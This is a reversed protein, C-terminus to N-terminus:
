PRFVLRYFKVPAGTTPTAVATTMIGGGATGIETFPLESDTWDGSTLDTTEQLVYGGGLWTFSVTDITTTASLAPASSPPTVNSVDPLPGSDPGGLAAIIQPPLATAHFQLSSVYLEGNGPNGNTGSLIIPSNTYYIASNINLTCCPCNFPYVPETNFPEGDLYGSVSGGIAAVPGTVVLAVRHWTDATMPITSPVDFPTGGSAGTIDLYNSADLTLAIGSGDGASEFLTSPTGQSTGPQYIDMIVTYDTDNTSGAPLIPPLTLTAPWLPNLGLVNVIQGGPNPLGFDETTGMALSFNTGSDAGNMLLDPGFTATLPNTLVDFTWWGNTWALAPAVSLQVSNTVAGCPDSVIVTYIGASSATINPRILSPGTGGSIKVGNFLWQYNVTPTGNAQVNFTATSGVQLPQQPATMSVIAPPACTSCDHAALYEVRLGTPTCGAAQNNTVVFLVTNVQPSPLFNGNITFSTWYWGPISSNITNGTKTGNFTMSVAGDDAAWRGSISATAANVGQPLVFRNSYTYFGYPSNMQSSSCNPSIWESVHPTEMWPWLNNVALADPRTYGQLTCGGPSSATVPGLTYHPDVGCNPLLSGNAAIGTNTLVNLFSGEVVALPITKQATLGHCDKVTITISHMGPGIPIDCEPSQTIQIEDSPCSCDQITLNTGVCPVLCNSSILQAPWIVNLGRKYVGQVLVQCQSANGCLDTVTVTVYADPGPVITGNTPTQWQGLSCEPTCSDTATVSIRPIVLECNTTIIGTVPNTGGTIVPPTTDVVTIVQRCIDTDGCSDSVQWSNTIFKPCTGNTVSSLRIISNSPCCSSVITPPASTWLTGCQVTMNSPCDFQFCPPCNIGPLVTVTFSCSSANGCSDVALTDVTNTTNVPFCYNTDIITGNLEYTVQVNTCCLDSVTASFNAPACNSCTTLVINGPCQLNICTAGCCVYGVNFGIGDGPQQSVNVTLYPVTAPAPYGPCSAYAGQPLITTPLPGTPQFLAWGTNFDDGYQDTNYYSGIVTGVTGANTVGTVNAYPDYSANTICTHASGSLDYEGRFVVSQSVTATTHQALGSADLYLTCPNPMGDLFYFNLTWALNNQGSSFTNVLNLGPCYGWDYPGYNTDTNVFGGLANPVNQFGQNSFDTVDGPFM